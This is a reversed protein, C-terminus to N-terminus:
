CVPVGTQHTPFRVTFLTGDATSSTVDVRGQHAQVITRVTSLGLGTGGARTSFFPEFIRTTDKITGASDWVTLSVAEGQPEVGVRVRGGRGTAIVANRLLNIFVQRVQGADVEADAPTLSGEIDVGQALPDSRFMELTEGVVRDVREPRFTPPPPRALKLYEEVLSALRDAERMILKALRPGAAAPGSEDALMQAAGRMSALPNRVEHALQASFRGLSALHDIHRLEHELRRFETLDQFVVLSGQSGDGLPTVALGLVRPGAPTPVELEARRRHPKLRLAGPLLEDMQRVRGRDEDLGLMLRAAPNIFSVRGDGACTVLGSPMSTVITEHLATLERLDDERASLRGGTLFLQEAVYGSLIAVMFQALTPMVWGTVVEPWPRVLLPGARGVGSHLAWLVVSYGVTGLAAAVLAGRRYLLVSAAIVAISYVFTFPSDPGGSLFVLLSALGVDTFIQLWAARRGVRGWRLLLGLMLTSAYLGGVVAFSALDETSLGEPLRATWLRSALAALFLTSAIIRFATLWTTKVHLGGPDAPTSSSPM